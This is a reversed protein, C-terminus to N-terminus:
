YIVWYEYIFSFTFKKDLISLLGIKFSLFSFCKIIKIITQTSITKFKKNYINFKLLNYFLLMTKFIKVKLKILLYIFKNLFFDLCPTTQRLLIKWCVNWEM